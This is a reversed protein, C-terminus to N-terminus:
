VFLYNLLCNITLGKVIIAGNKNGIDIAPHISKELQKNSTFFSQLLENVLAIAYRKNVGHRM